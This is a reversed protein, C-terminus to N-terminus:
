ALRKAAEVFPILEITSTAMSTTTAITYSTGELQAYSLQAKAYFLSM